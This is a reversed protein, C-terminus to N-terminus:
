AALEPENEWFDVIRARVPESPLKWYIEEQFTVILQTGPRLLRKPTRKLIIRTQDEGTGNFATLYLTGYPANQSPDTLESKTEIDSELLNLFTVVVRMGCQQALLILEAEHKSLTWEVLRFEYASDENLEHSTFQETQREM